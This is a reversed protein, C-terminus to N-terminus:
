SSLNELQAILNQTREECEAIVEKTVHVSLAVKRGAGISKLNKQIQLANEKIDAIQKDM